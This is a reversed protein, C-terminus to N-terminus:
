YRNYKALGQGFSKLEKIWVTQEAEKAEIDQVLELVEEVYEQPVCVVGDLDGVILDGPNVTIGGCQVPINNALTEYRSIISVPSVSRSFIEFDSYDRKIEPLDRVGGDLVAGEFGNVYAGATMLGGLLAVDLNGETLSIVLVEGGESNDLLDILHTPPHREVSPGDLLTAAPGVLKRGSVRPRMKYDMFCRRGVIQDCADCVSPVAAQRYAEIIEKSYIM